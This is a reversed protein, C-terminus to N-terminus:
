RVSVALANELQALHDDDHTAMIATWDAFTIRAGNPYISGREWDAASLRTLFTLVEGRRRRFAALAEGTDNRLYQRDLAWRDPDLPFPVEGTIGWAEADIPPDGVVFVKPDDMVLMSHFRLIVLEEIDRYHCVVEKVSWSQPRPRQSLEADTADTVREQVEDPTREVRDLREALPLELYERYTAV